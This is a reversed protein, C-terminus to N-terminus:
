PAITLTGSMPPHIECVLSYTGPALPGVLFTRTAIGSFTEGRFVPGGGSAPYVAVNHLIGPDRNDLVLAVVVGAPM